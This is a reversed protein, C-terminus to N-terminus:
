IKFGYEYIFNELAEEFNYVEKTNYRTIIKIGDIEEIAVDIYKEDIERNKDM